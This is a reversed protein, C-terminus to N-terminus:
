PLPTSARDDEGPRDVPAVERARELLREGRRVADALESLYPSDYITRALAHAGSALASSSFSLRCSRARSLFSGRASRARAALSLATRVQM